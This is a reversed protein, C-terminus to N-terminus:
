AALRVVSKELIGLIRRMAAQGYRGELSLLSLKEQRRERPTGDHTGLANRIM